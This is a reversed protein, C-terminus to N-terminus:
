GQLRYPNFLEIIGLSEIVLERGHSDLKSISYGNM